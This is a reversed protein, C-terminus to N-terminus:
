PQDLKRIESFFFDNLKWFWMSDIIYRPLQVELQIEWRIIRVQRHLQSMYTTYFMHMGSHSYFLWDSSVRYLPICTDYNLGGLPSNYLSGQMKLGGM